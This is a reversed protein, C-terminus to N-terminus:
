KTAASRCPGHARHQQEAFLFHREREARAERQEDDGRAAREAAHQPLRADGVEEAGREGARVEERQGRNKEDGREDAGRLARGRDRHNGGRGDGFGEDVATGHM